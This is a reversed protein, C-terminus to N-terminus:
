GGSVLWEEILELEPGDDDFVDGGGHKLTNGGAPESWLPALEANDCNILQATTAEFNLQWAEPWAGLPETPLPPLTDSTDRLRFISNGNDIDHCGGESANSCDHKDLFEPVIRELYFQPSVVCRGAVGVESGPDVIECAGGLALGALLGAVPTRRFRSQAVPRHYRM